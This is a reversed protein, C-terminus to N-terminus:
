ARGGIQRLVDPDLRYEGYRVRTLVGAAALRQCIRFASTRSMGAQQYLEKQSFTREGFENNIQTIEVYLPAGPGELVLEYDLTTERFRIVAEFGKLHRGRGQILREPADGPLERFRAIHILGEVAAGLAFTGGSQDSWDMGFSGKSPHHNVIILCQLRKALSDILTMEDSEVKVVDGGARRHPRLATYSDLVALKAHHREIESQLWSYFEPSFRYSLRTFLTLPINAVPVPSARLYDRMSLDGATDDQEVIIVPGKDMVRYCDMLPSGSAVSIAIQTALVTKGTKHSGVLLFAGPTPLIHEVLEKRDPAEIALIDAVTLGVPRAVVTPQRTSEGAQPAPPQIDPEAHTGAAMVPREASRSYVETTDAIAKEITRERYDNREWKDRYLGSAWCLSDM